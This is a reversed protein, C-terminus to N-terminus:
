LAVEISLKNCSCCRVKMLCIKHDCLSASAASPFDWRCVSSPVQREMFAALSRKEQDARDRATMASNYRGNGSVLYRFLLSGM